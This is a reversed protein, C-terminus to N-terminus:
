NVHQCRECGCEVASISEGTDMGEDCKVQGGDWLSRAATQAHSEPWGLHVAIDAVPVDGRGDCVQPIAALFAAEDNTM